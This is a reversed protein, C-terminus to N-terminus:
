PRFIFLFSSSVCHVAESQVTIVDYSIVHLSLEPIEVDDVVSSKTMLSCSECDSDKLLFSRLSWRSRRTSPSSCRSPTLLFSASNSALEEVFGEGEVSVPSHSRGMMKERKKSRGRDGDGPDDEEQARTRRKNGTLDRIRHRRPLPSSSPSWSDNDSSPPLVNLM